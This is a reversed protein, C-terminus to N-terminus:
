QLTFRFFGGGLGLLDQALDFLGKEYCMWGAEYLISPFEWNVKDEPILPSDLGDLSRTYHQCLSEVHSLYDIRGPLLAPDYMIGRTQSPWSQKVIAVGLKFSKCRDQLTMRSRCYAQVPRNVRLEQLEENYSVLSNQILTSRLHDFKRPSSIIELDKKHSVGSCQRLMKLQIRDPDLYAMMNLLNLADKNLKEFQRRWVTNLSHQNSYSAYFDTLRTSDRRIIDSIGIIGLPNYDTNEFIRRAAEIEEDISSQNFNAQDVKTRTILLEVADEENLQRLEVGGFKRILKEDRSTILISGHNCESRFIKILDEKEQLLKENEDSAANDFVLLWNKTKELWERMYKAVSHPNEPENDRLGLEVSFRSFSAALKASM